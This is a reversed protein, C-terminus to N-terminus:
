TVLVVAGQAALWAQTRAHQPPHPRIVAWSDSAPGDADMRCLPKQERVTRFADPGIRPDVRRLDGRCLAAEPYDRLVRACRRVRDASRRPNPKRDGVAAAGDRRAAAGPIRVVCVGGDHGEAVRFDSPATRS